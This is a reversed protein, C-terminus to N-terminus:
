QYSVSGDSDICIVPEVLDYVNADRSIAALRRLVLQFDMLAFDTTEHNGFPEFGAEVSIGGKETLLYRAHFDQGHDKECWCFFTIKMESPIVDRFLSVAERALDDNSLGKANNRYHIECDAGPNTEGVIRFVERFLNKQRSNFPDFYPDVFVLKSGHELLGQLAKIISPIDRPIDDGHPVKLLPVNEDVMDVSLVSKEGEALDSAIIAHFPKSRHESLANDLWSGLAPDYNRGSRIVKNRKAQNLAEEVMKKQMPTLSDAAQYVERFWSKPFQSVLRGKDFGFKEILYRFNEWSSGIAQPEVAYEYHM